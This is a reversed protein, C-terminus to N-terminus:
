RGGWLAELEDKWKKVLEVNEPPVAGFAGAFGGMMNKQADLMKQAAEEGMQEKMREFAEQQQAEMEASQEEMMAKGLAMALSTHMKMFSASDLDHDELVDEWEGQFKMGTAFRQFDSPDSGLDAEFDSSLGRIEKMAAMYSELDDEEIVNSTSGDGDFPSKAAEPEDGCGFMTLLALLGGVTTRDLRM